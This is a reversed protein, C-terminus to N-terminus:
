DYSRKWDPLTKVIVLLGGLAGMVVGPQPMGLVWLLPGTAMMALITARARHIRLLKIMVVWSPLLVLFAVLATLPAFGLMAGFLTSLGIGGEFHLFVCWNHGAVAMVGAATAAWPNGTLLAAGAVAGIALGTDVVTTLAGAWFGASRGVNLGGTHGSGGQRPDPTRMVRCVLVGTPMAGLLYGWTGAVLLELISTM